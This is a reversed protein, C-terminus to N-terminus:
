TRMRGTVSFSMAYSSRALSGTVRLGAASVHAYRGTGHSASINGTFHANTGSVYYSAHGSGSISDRSSCVISFSISAGSSGVDLQVDIPCHFTGTGTGTENLVQTGRHSTPRMHASEAVTVTGATM